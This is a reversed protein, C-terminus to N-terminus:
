GAGDEVADPCGAPLPLWSECQPWLAEPRFHRLAREIAADAPPSISFPRNEGCGTPGLLAVFEGDRVSLDIPQVAEYRGGGTLGYAVSVGALEVAKTM